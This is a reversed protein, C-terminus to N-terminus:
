LTKGSFQKWDIKASTFDADKLDAASATTPMLLSGALALLAAGIGIKSNIIKM